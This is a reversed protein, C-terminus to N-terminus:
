GILAMVVCGFTDWFGNLYSDIAKVQNKGTVKETSLQTCKQKPHM